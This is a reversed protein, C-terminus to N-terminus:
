FNRPLAQFNLTWFSIYKRKKKPKYKDSEM